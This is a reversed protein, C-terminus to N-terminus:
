FGAITEKRMGLCPKRATSKLFVRGRERELPSEKFRVGGAGGGEWPLPTPPRRVLILPFDGIKKRTGLSRRPIGAPLSQRGEKSM